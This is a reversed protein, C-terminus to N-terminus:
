GNKFFCEPSYSICILHWSNYTGTQFYLFAAPHPNQMLNFFLVSWCKSSGKIELVHTSNQITKSSVYKNIKTNAMGSLFYLIAFKMTFM